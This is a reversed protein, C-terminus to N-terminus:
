KWEVSLNKRLRGIRVELRRMSGARFTGAITESKSNDDWTVQVRAEHRGPTVEVLKELGGKRLKVGVIKKAVRSELDEELVPEGDLWIRLTGSKLPHEFDIFLRAPKQASAAAGPPPTEPESPTSAPEPAPASPFAPVVSPGAGVTAV